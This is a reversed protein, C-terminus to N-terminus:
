YPIMNQYINYQDAFPYFSYPYVYEYPYYMRWPAYIPVLVRRRVVPPNNNPININIDSYNEIFEPIFAVFVLGFLLIIYFLTIIKM